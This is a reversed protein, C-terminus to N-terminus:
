LAIRPMGFTNAFSRAFHFPSLAAAEALDGLTLPKDGIDLVLEVVRQRRRADLTRRIGERGGFQRRLVQAYAARVLTEAELDSM